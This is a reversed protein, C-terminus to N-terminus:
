QVALFPESESARHTVLWDGFELVYGKAVVRYHLRGPALTMGGPIHSGLDSLRRPYEGTRAHYRGLSERVAEGQDICENLALTAERAGALWVLTFIAATVFTAVMSAATGLRRLLAASGFALLFGLGAAALPSAGHEGMWLGALAAALELSLLTLVGARLM